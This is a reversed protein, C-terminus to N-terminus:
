PTSRKRAMAQRTWEDMSVGSPAIEAPHFIIKKKGAELLPRVRTVVPCIDFDPALGKAEMACPGCGEFDLGCENGGSDTLSYTKEPWHFGYFPCRARRVSDPM